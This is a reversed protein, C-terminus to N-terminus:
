ADPLNMLLNDDSPDKETGLYPEFGCVHCKTEKIPVKEGEITVWFQEDEWDRKQILRPITVMLPEYPIHVTYYGLLDIHEHKGDDALVTRKATIEPM